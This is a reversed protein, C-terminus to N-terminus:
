QEAATRSERMTLGNAAYARLRKRRTPGTTWRSRAPSCARVSSSTSKRRRNSTVSGCRGTEVCDYTGEDGAVISAITLQSSTAGSIRGGNVLAVGGKRWQYTVPEGGSVGVSFSATTGLILPAPSPQTTIEVGPYVTLVAAVSTVSGCRNSVICDYSAGDAQTVSAVTFTADTAGAIPSGNRRWQYLLPAAGTAVVTFSAPQGLCAGAGIPQTAISPASEVTLTALSSAVSGCVNSVVCDYVGALGSTASLQLTAATQGAVASGNRRWQYTLPGTGSAAVSFSVSASDCATVPSPSITITVPTRVTLTATSSTLSGCANTAICVYDGSDGAQVSAISLTSGTQGPIIAGNRKWAFTPAPSGTASVSFQVSSGLCTATSAPSAVVVPASNVTLTASASTSSGCRNTAICDYSGGDGASAAALTFVSATAGAIAQGDRRWQFTVPGAGTAEISFTVSEGPCAARAVPQNTVLPVSDVTLSAPSSTVNGCRNGVVCDYSGADAASATATLTAATAGAIAVGNRRWQYTMPASGSATVSFTYAAGDCAASSAPGSVIAVPTTVALAATSSTLTSCVNSVVCDYGAADGAGVAAITLVSATEGPIPVGDRRWQFTPAPSGTAM